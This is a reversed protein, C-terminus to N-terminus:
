QVDTRALIQAPTKRMVLFVPILGVIMNFVLLACFTIGAIEPRVMYMGRFYTGIQTINSLVYYMLGIGIASTILTIAFIEGAFIRYIDSKKVGIARYTGIEKIRSLFSSRLMLYIEILSILLIVAALIISTKLTERVSKLHAKREKDYNVRANIGEDALLQEVAHADDAYLSVKKKTGFNTLECTHKSVYYVDEGYKTSTYFGVLKLPKGNMKLKLNEGLKYGEEEYHDDSVIVEYDNKPAEGRKITLRKKGLEYNRLEEEGGGYDYDDMYSEVMEDMDQWEQGNAILDTFQSSKVFISPNEVDSIGVITYKKLGPVTLTRGLFDKYHNLAITSGYNTKLFKKLLMKDVVVDHSKEPMAGASLDEPALEDWSVLSGAIIGAMSSTQYYDDMPLNFSIRSDGPIVYHVGELKKLKKVLKMSRGPNAVALYHEDTKLFDDRQVNMVGAIHSTAYFAFFSALVFGVLLFKKLVNFKGISRFGAAISKLIPSISRYRVKYRQPLYANYDFTAEEFVSSDMASYHDDILEIDSTEDIVNYRGGTDIFINGGRIALKINAQRESDAYLEIGIDQHQMRDAVPMDKLYIRNELEYDLLQETDNIEDSIVKGDQLRIIRSSFFRAIDEEHTVLLVLREQSIKKIINMIALTNASDLNGTPEDAIIIRPNKVIARAIAVRQRQGGSLAGATKNRFAYIGVAELCYNVRERIVKRNRIGIMRLALAVNEFVTQDDILNFNQFIYGIKANRIKDKKGSRRKNIKQNDIYISGKNIKDLGGIANLLTTKGCGSPGLLTVIGTEPLELTTDNIVHIQNARHRNFFKHVHNLRIM